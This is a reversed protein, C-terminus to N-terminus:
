KLSIKFIILLIILVFVFFLGYFNGSDFFSEILVLFLFINFLFCVIKIGRNTMGLKPAYSLDNTQKGMLSAIKGALVSAEDHSKFMDIYYKKIKDNYVAYIKYCKVEEIKEGVDNLKKDQEIYIESIESFDISKSRKFPTIEQIIKNLQKDFIIIKKRLLIYIIFIYPIIYIVYLIPQVSQVGRRFIYAGEAPFLFFLIFILLVIKHWPLFSELILLRKNENKIRYESFTTQLNNLIGNM